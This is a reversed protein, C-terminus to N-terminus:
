FYGQCDKFLVRKCPPSVVPVKAKTYSELFRPSIDSRTIAAEERQVSEADGAESEYRPGPNEVSLWSREASRRRFQM